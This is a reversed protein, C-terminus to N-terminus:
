RLKISGIIAIDDGTDVNSCRIVEAKYKRDEVIRNGKIIERHIEADSYTVTKDKGVKRLNDVVHGATLVFTTDDITILVGSGQADEAQVFVSAKEIASVTNSIGGIPLIL